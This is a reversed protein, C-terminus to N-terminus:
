RADEVQDYHARRKVTLAQPNRFHQIDSEVIQHRWLQEADPRPRTAEIAAQQLQADDFAPARSHEALVGLGYVAAQRVETAPDVGYQFFAPLQCVLALAGFIPQPACLGHASPRPQGICASGSLAGEKM